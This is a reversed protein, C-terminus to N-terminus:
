VRSKDPIKFIEFNLIDCPLVQWIPLVCSVTRMFDAGCPYPLFLNVVNKVSFVRMHGIRLIFFYKSFTQNFPTILFKECNLKHITKNVPM